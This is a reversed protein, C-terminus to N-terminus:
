EERLQRMRLEIGSQIKKYIEAPHKPIDRINLKELAKPMKELIERIQERVVKETLGAKQGARM